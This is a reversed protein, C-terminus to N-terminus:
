GELIEATVKDINVVYEIQGKTRSLFLESRINETLSTFTFLHNLGFYTSNSFDTRVGYITRDSVDWLDDDYCCFTRRWSQIKM